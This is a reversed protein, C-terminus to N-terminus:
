KWITAIVSFSAEVTFSIAARLPILYAPCHPLELWRAPSAARVGVTGDGGPTIQTGSSGYQIGKVM